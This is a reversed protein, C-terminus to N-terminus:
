NKSIKSRQFDAFASKIDSEAIRLTLEESCKDAERGTEMASPDVKMVVRRIANIASAAMVAALDAGSMGESEEVLWSLEVGRELPRNRAHVNIIEARSDNDPLGLQITTGFRGYRCLAPDMMDIRNTAGLVFVGSLEEVGDMETLFQSLVRGAVGSDGSAAQRAALLGDIEDFFVICPSAQRARRFLDRVGKESEGIFKNLLEPGKVSIFNVGSETALAKALMTKGVGPPGVLLLGKSPSVAARKFLKEYKLPWVVAEKLQQKIDEHGGVDDWRVNPVEVFVERIASPTISQFAALFDSMSVRLKALQDYPIRAQSFDLEGTVRRVCVMAAERCLAALDAGVYGHTMNALTNLDLDDTTPIGRSHIELIQLRDFRDPIPIEIERDFRGPRRLAPDISNPLNTAGIVIVNERKNMGDMLTLLQAVVRREVDGAANERHPAIADIEDLFIISPGKKAAEEFIKRLHAESEGYFKHIIEPGSINFFSAAVENAITRAILTKGCGPPGYLLIGRPADIGLSEFVEPFKLPLEIMERIRRMQTRIGGIDEYSSRKAGSDTGASAFDIQTAADIKAPKAPILEKVKFELSENGFLTARVRSDQVIPYDELLAKIYDHDRESAKAALPELVVRTASVVDTRTVSVWGDVAVGAAARLLGDLQVANQGRENRFAPIVRGVATGQDRLLVYDGTRLGLRAMDAPDMRVIGRGVDKAEASLVKLRISNQVDIANM